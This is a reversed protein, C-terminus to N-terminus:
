KYKDEEEKEDEDEGEGEEEDKDKKEEKDEKDEEEDENEDEGELYEGSHEIRGGRLKWHCSSPPPSSATAAIRGECNM